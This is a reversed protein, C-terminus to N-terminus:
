HRVGRRKLASLEAMVASARAIANTRYFDRVGLGFPESGLTGGRAALAEGVLHGINQVTYLQTSTADAWTLGLLKLRREMEAAVFLVKEGVATNQHNSGNNLHVKGGRHGDFLASKHWHGLVM